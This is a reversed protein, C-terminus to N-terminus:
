ITLPLTGPVRVGLTSAAFARSSMFTTTPALIVTSCAVAIRCASASRNAWAAYRFWPPACIGWGKRARKALAWHKAVLESGRSGRPCTWEIGGIGFRYRGYRSMIRREGVYDNGFFAGEEIQTYQKIVSYRRHLRNQCGHIAPLSPGVGGTPM